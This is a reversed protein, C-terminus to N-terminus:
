RWAIPRRHRRTLPPEISGEGLCRLEMSGSTEVLRLLNIKAKERCGGMVVPEVVKESQNRMLAVM